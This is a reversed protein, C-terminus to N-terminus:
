HFGAPIATTATKRRVSTHSISNKLRARQVTRDHLRSQPGLLKELPGRGFYELQDMTAPLRFRVGIRPVVMKDRESVNARGPSFTATATAESIGIKVGDLHAPTFHTAVNMIGDPYIKYTVLFQNGAPLKYDVKVIANGDIIEGTASTVNFNRSSLEWIELRKPNGSGYDNDNPARWFNPQIGFGENFYETGGVKYSAVVGAKKDFVFNVKSSTVKLDNGEESVTLKPGAAKYVTKDATVPM